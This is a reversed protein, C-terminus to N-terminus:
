SGRRMDFFVERSTVFCDKATLYVGAAGHHLMNSRRMVFNCCSPDIANDFIKALIM